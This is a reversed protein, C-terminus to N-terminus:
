VYERLDILNGEEDHSAYLRYERMHFKWESDFYEQCEKCDEEIEEHGCSMKNGERLM